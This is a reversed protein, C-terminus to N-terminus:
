YLFMKKAKKSPIPCHQSQSKLIKRRNKALIKYLADRLKRPILKLILLPKFLNNTGALLHLISNSYIYEKNETIFIMSDINPNLQVNEKTWNSNFDTIFLEPNKNIRVIFRIFKSCMNCEGDYILVKM